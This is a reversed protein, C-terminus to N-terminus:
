FKKWLSPEFLVLVAYLELRGLIMMLSLVLKTPAGLLAFNQMPGVEALGPGINFLCAVTASFAGTFSLQPEFLGVLIWGAFSVLGLLVLYVLVSEQGEQNLTNGHVRVARVVHTRFARELHVRCIKLAVVLRIVKAGGATSGSCGGLLMLTLLLIQTVPLWQDYDATAYGTTTMISVVQFTAQRLLESWPADTSGELSLFAWILLSAGVLVVLYFVVETAHRMEEWERRILRLIFIFSLGGLVMFVIAAWELWPNEYAALSASRTSFGGTSVTTMMHTVADFVSLGCLLYTVLCLVSLGFYLLMLRGIGQQVRATDLEEATASAERSYLVKASAGLFSLLAVFFVVVGLGGMWQLISRWFLLSNPLRELDSLVSAGTTTLGSTSEFIANAIGLEPLILFFPLSCVLSALIWGIGITALADKRFMRASASRSTLWLALALALATLFSVGFGTRATDRWGPQEYGWAVALSLGLAVSVAALIISQLRLVLRYNM